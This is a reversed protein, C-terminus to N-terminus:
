RKWPYDQTKLEAEYKARLRNMTDVVKQGDIGKKSVKKIWDEVFYSSAQSWKERENKEMAHFIVKKGDIGAEMDKRAKAIDAFYTQAFKDIYQDSVRLITKQIDAPLKNFTKLNVGIGFGLVQGMQVETWHGAVEYHKYAKAAQIYNITADVTGKDLAQYLEGMGIRVPTAGLKRLLGGWGGTARIKLGDLDEVKLIPKKSLIDVSGTTFNTLIKVNRKETEARLEPLVKRLEQWTKTGVWPDRGGFPANALNWIPLDAPTYVGVISGMDALGASVAKLAEKGKVLAQSWFIEIEVQGNTQKKIEDAWWQLTVQRAGRPPGFEAYRLKYTNAKSESPTMTTLGGVILAATAVMAGTKLIGAVTIFKRM